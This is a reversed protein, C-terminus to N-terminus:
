MGSTSPEVGNGGVRYGRYKQHRPKKGPLIHGAWLGIGMVGCTCNVFQVQSMVKSFTWISRSWYFM